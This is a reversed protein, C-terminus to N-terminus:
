FAITSPLISDIRVFTIKCLGSVFECSIMLRTIEGYMLTLKCAIGCRFFVFYLFVTRRCLPLGPWNAFRIQIMNVPRFLFFNSGGFAGAVNIM